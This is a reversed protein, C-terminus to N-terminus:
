KEQKGLVKSRRLDVLVAVLYLLFSLTGIGQGVSMALVVPVPRPDLVSWVFLALGVLALVSAARVLKVPDKM